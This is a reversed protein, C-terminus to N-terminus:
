HAMERAARLADRFEPLDRIGAMDKDADIAAFDRYGTRLAQRFLDLARTRAAQDDKPALAYVCAAQYAILPADSLHLAKQAEQRGEDHRGLRACLVGLGARALAFDPNCAVAKREVELAKKPQGLVEALVHAQNHWAPLYQPNVEAAAAYDALAGTPNTAVRLLGRAVYEDATAPAAAAAAARDRGAAAKDGVAEEAKARSLYTVVPPAGLELARTFDDIAGRGNRIQKAGKGIRAMGRHRYSEAHDPNRKISDTFEAEARVYERRNYLIIGRFYGPRPDGPALSKAARFRELASDHKSRVMDCYGLAFQAAFHTPDDDVIAALPEAALRHLGAAMLAVARVYRDANTEDEILAERGKFVPVLEAPTLALMQDQDAITRPIPRGAYCAAAVQNWTRAADTRTRKGPALHRESMWEAHAMLLALEGLDTVLATRADSSLDPANPGDTKGPLGYAALLERGRDLATARIKPDDTAGLDVRLTTLERAVGLARATADARTQVQAQQYALGGLGAAAFVTCALVVQAAVRPNRRRWKGLRERFSPNVAHALPLNQRQRELDDLLHRASQYRHAPDTHLLKRVIAEVAPPAARNLSRVGPVPIRRLRVLTALDAREGDTVMFPNRGTLLEAFIVGLSFLDTRSDVCTGVSVREPGRNLSRTYYEDLQEPAMYPLTGGAWQRDRARVDFALNFDLLLPQGDDALLINAPKLDLHLIGIDHAHALGDALRTMLWLVRDVHTTGPLGLRARPAPVAPSFAPAPQGIATTKAAQTTSAHPARALSFVGTDRCEQILDALTQRGLFPMCVAQFPSRDHVSHIPVINTHRLKALQQPERTPRTTVKLAVPRNALATQEALFVRAFAGTGLVSVLQFGLFTQGVVPFAANGRPNSPVPAPAPAPQVRATALADALSLDFVEDTAPDGNTEAAPLPAEGMSGFSNSEPSGSPPWPSNIDLFRIPAPTRGLDDPLPPRTDRDYVWAYDDPDPNEGRAALQAFEESALGRILDPDAFLDPYDARYDALRRRNGAARNHELDSRVLETLVWLYDPDARPPLFAGLAKPGGRGSGEFAEIYRTRNNGTLVHATADM